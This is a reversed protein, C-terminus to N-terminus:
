LRKLGSKIGDVIQKFLLSTHRFFSPFIFYKKKTSQLAWLMEEWGNAYNYKWKPFFDVNKSWDRKM